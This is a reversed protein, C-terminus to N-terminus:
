LNEFASKLKENYFKKLLTLNASASESQLIQATLQKTEELSIHQILYRIEALSSPSMSLYDIGLGYLVPTFLPDSAIEGCIGVPKQHRKTADIIEKLVRVVTPHAPQYLHAVSQNGRDAAFLYQVLDNSGISVFDCHRLISDIVFVLSPVEIMIGVQMSEDFAIKNERLEKKCENIIVQTEVLEELRSIMPIMLSVKGFASARLIARIQDKFMTQNALCIRIGRFGMFPNTELHFEESDHLFKDGGIDLTRIIIENEPMQEVVAKYENFQIEENPFRGHRIFLAETRYLGVGSARNKVVAAMDNSGEINAKLEIAQGDTTTSPLDISSRFTEMIRLQREQQVAYKRITEPTPHIIIIGDNGDIIILDDQELKSTIDHLGVVAPVQMTRAMIAAHSTRTGLDTAFGLVDDRQLELTQSPTIETAVLIHDRTFESLQKEEQGLLNNLVRRSVDRIDVVRERLYEDEMNNFFAIYKNCVKEFAVEANCLSQKIENITEGILANDELVLLHADFIEAESEGLSDAIHNRMKKIQVRTQKLADEFRDIEESIEEPSIKKELLVFTNEALVFAHGIAIGPSAALGHVRMEDPKKQNESNM